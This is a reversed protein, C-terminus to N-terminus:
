RMTISSPTAPRSPSRISMTPRSTSPPRSSGTTPLAALNAEYQACQLVEHWKWTYNDNNANIVKYLNFADQTDFTETYTPEISSGYRVANTNAPQSRKTGNIATIAYIYNGLQDPLQESLSRNETSSAVTVTGPYRVM